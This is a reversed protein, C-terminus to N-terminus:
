GPGAAAAAELRAVLTLVEKRAQKVTRAIGLRHRAPEAALETVADLVAVLALLLDRTSVEQPANRKHSM